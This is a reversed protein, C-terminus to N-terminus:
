LEESLDLDLTKEDITKAIYLSSYESESLDILKASELRNGESDFIVKIQPRFPFNRRTDVVLGIEENNLVVVSRVPYISMHGLFARIVKSDFLNGEGLVTRM